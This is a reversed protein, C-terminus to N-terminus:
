HSKLVCAYIAQTHTCQAKRGDGALMPRALNGARGLLRGDGPFRACGGTKVKTEVIEAQM